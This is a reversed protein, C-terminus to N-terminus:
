PNPHTLAKSKLKPNEEMRVARNPEPTQHSNSVISVDSTLLCYSQQM